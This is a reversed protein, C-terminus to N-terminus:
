EVDIVGDNMQAPHFECWYNHTGKENFRLCYSADKNMTASDFLAGSDADGSRGSTVTHPMAENNVWKVVQGSTITLKAPVFAIDEMSVEHDGVADGCSVVEVAAVATKDSGADPEPSANDPVAAADIPEAADRPGPGEDDDAGCAALGVAFSVLMGTALITPSSSEPSERILEIFHLLGAGGIAPIALLFSFTAAEDRKLGCTMGAVITAGSRSVGPLIAFAQLVGIAFARPYSLERCTATGSAVKASWFLMAATVLFM